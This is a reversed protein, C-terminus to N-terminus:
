IAHIAVFHFGGVAVGYEKRRSATAAAIYQVVCARVAEIPRTREVHVVRAAGLAHVEAGVAVARVVVAAVNSRRNARNNGTSFKVENKPLYPLANRPTTRRAAPCLGLVRLCLGQLLFFCNKTGTPAFFQKRRAPNTIGRENYYESKYDSFIFPRVRHTGVILLRIM